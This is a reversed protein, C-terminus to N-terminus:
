SDEEGATHSGLGFWRQLPGGLQQRLDPYRAIAVEDQVTAIAHAVPRPLHAWFHEDWWYDDAKRQEYTKLGFM